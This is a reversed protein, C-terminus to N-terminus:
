SDHTQSVMLGVLTSPFNGAKSFATIEKDNAGRDKATKLICIGELIEVVKAFVEFM